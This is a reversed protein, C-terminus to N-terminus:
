NNIGKDDKKNMWYKKKPHREDINPPPYKPSNSGTLPPTKKKALEGQFAEL